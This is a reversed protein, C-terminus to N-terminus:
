DIAKVKIEIAAPNQQSVAPPAMFEYIWPRSPLGSLVYPTPGGFIGCDVGNYGAGIAQSGSVLAFRLAPDVNGNSPDLFLPQSSDITQVTTDCQHGSYQTLSFKATRGNACFGGQWSVHEVSNIFLGTPLDAARTVCNFVSLAVNQSAGQITNVFSNYVVVSNVGGNAHQPNTILGSMESQYISLQADSGSYVTSIRMKLLSVTCDVGLRLQFVHMSQLSVIAGDEIELQGSFFADDRLQFNENMRFGFGIITLNKNITVVGSTLDPTFPRVEITDGNVAETYALPFTPFTVGVEGFPDVVLVRAEAIFTSLLSFLLLFSLIRMRM